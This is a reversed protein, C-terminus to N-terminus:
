QRKQTKQKGRGGGDQKEDVDKKGEREEEYRIIARAHVHPMWDVILRKGGTGPHIRLFSFITEDRQRM